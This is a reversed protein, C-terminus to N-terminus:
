LGDSLLQTHNMVYQVLAGNGQKAAREQIAQLPTIVYTFEQPTGTALVGYEYQGLTALGGSRPGTVVDGAGNGFVGINAPKKLPLAGNSNKLLVIGDTGLKRILKAHDSRVDNKSRNTPKEPTITLMVAMQRAISFVAKGIGPNLFTPNVDAPPYASQDLWFYPTMVRRCMDDLRDLTLSGNQLGSPIQEAFLPSSTIPGIDTLGSNGPMDLDHGANIARVGSHTAGWDSM